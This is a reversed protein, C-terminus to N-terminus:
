LEEGNTEIVHKYWDFSKKKYRKNTGNGEDDLDVYVFGYRKSMEGTSASVLDIPAWTYYGWCTVGDEHVAKILQEIHERFYQIRYDDIVTGNIFEDACGLGNETIIIPKHYRRDVYNLAYRLGVPDDEWGWANTKLSPNRYGHFFGNAYGRNEAASMGSSYYNMGYFDVTGKQFLANDEETVQIHIGKKEYENIKYKPFYGHCLVDLLFLDRDYDHIVALSDEPCNTASYLPVFALVCGIKNEPDIQHGMIVAKASAKLVSYCSAALAQEPNDVANLKLGSAMYSYVMCDDNDYFVSHNIENFTLWYKVKGKYETFLTRCYKEYMEITHPNTWAGQRSIELPMELHCITVLPEIHYKHLEDFVNQYFQLGERNPEAEYGTPYIRAWDISMRFSKLGLEALLRIDEKYNHYFDIAKVSPYYKGEEITETIERLRIRSGSTAVDMINLGKGGEYIAGECQCAASGGGWLFNEQLKM